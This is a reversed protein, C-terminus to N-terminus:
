VLAQSFLQASYDLWTLVFFKGDCYALYHLFFHIM